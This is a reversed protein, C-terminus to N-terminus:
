KCYKRLFLFVAKSLSQLLDQYLRRVMHYKSNKHKYQANGDATKNKIVKKM